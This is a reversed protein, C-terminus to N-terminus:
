SWLFSRYNIASEKAIDPNMNYKELLEKLLKLFFKNANPSTVVARILTKLNIKVPIGKTPINIMLDTKGNDSFRMDTRFLNDSYFPIESTYIIGELYERCISEFSIISRVEHEDEYVNRKHMIPAYFLQLVKEPNTLDESFIKEYGEIHEKEYNKYKVEGIHIDFITDELSRIFDGITTQIAISTSSKDGYEAWMSHSESDRKFWSSCFMLHNSFDRLLTRFSDRQYTVMDIYDLHFEDIKKAAQDYNEQYSKKRNVFAEDKKIPTNNENFLNTGYIKHATINSLTGESKDNFSYINPFYLSEESLMYMFKDITMYRWLPETLSPTEFYPSEVYPM